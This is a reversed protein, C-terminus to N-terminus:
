GGSVQARVGEVLSARATPSLDLRGLATAAARRVVFPADAATAVAQLSQISAEDAAGPHRAFLGALCQGAATRVPESRQADSVVSLVASVHEPGGANALAALAPIAVDDPKGALTSALSTAAPALDTHGAAALSALAAAASAALRNAEARDRNMGGELAAHVKPLDEAGVVAESVREGWLEKAAAADAAIVLVPTAARAPDSKLEDVVQAFTLDPLTEAVLLADLAPVQRLAVLGRAGTPWAHVSLGAQALGSELVARRANDGDIVGVVQLVERAAADGLAHVADASAAQGAHQAIAALAVAAEGRVAGSTRGSLASGLGPTPTSAASALARCLGSAAVDDGAELAFLLALDLAKAGAVQIALDDAALRTQWEAVDEGADARAALSGHEAASARAVGALAENSAPELRLAAYFATKALEENYISAPVEGPVLVKGDFHWIANAGSYAPLVSAEANHWANGLKLLDALANGSGGCKAAAEAAAGRVGEDPDIKAHAGLFGAARPDGIHGLTLAVNRRLFADEGALAAILPLVADGGLRTLAQMHVIRREEQDPDGLAHLLAPVGYEGHDASLTHIAQMREALDDSAVRAVLASIAEADNRREKRGIKALEMLRRAIQEYEGGQTLLDLWVGHDTTRFLEYAQAADPEMALCEQFKRLAEASQGRKLLDVGEQFTGGLDQAFASASLAALVAVCAFPRRMSMM